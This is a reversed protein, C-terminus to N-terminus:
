YKWRVLRTLEYYLRNRDLIYLALLLEEGTDVSSYGLRKNNYRLLLERLIYTWGDGNIQIETTDFVRCLWQRLPKSM